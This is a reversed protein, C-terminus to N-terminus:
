HTTLGPSLEWLTRDKKGHHLDCISGSVATNINVGLREGYEIKHGMLARPIEMKQDLSPVPFNFWSDATLPENLLFSVFVKNALKRAHKQGTERDEKRWIDFQYHTLLM